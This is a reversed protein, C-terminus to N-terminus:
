WLDYSAVMSEGPGPVVFDLITTTGGAVAARTGLNFDDVAVTGM